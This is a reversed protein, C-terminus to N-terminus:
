AAKKLKPAPSAHDKEMRDKAAAVKKKIWYDAWALFSKGTEGLEEPTECYFYDLFSDSRLVMFFADKGDEQAGKFFRIGIKRLAAREDPTLGPAKFEEMAEMEEVEAVTVEEVVGKETKATHKPASKKKEALKAKAKEAISMKKTTGKTNKKTTTM